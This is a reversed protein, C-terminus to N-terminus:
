LLESKVRFHKSDEVAPFKNFRTLMPNTKRNYCRHTKSVGELGVENNM